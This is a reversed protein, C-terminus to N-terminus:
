LSRATIDGHDTTAHITLEADGDNKLSNTVRGHGTGADLAASVGPAAGVSIEGARTRLVVTGRV